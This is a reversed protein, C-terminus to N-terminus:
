TLDPKFDEVVEQSNSVRNGGCAKSVWFGLLQCLPHEPQEARSSHGTCLPIENDGLMGTTSIAMAITNSSEPVKYPM